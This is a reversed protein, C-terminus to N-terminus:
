GGGAEDVVDGRFWGWDVETQLPPPPDPLLAPPPVADHPVYDVKKKKKREKKPSMRRKGRDVMAAMAMCACVRVDCWRLGGSLFFRRLVVQNNYVVDDRGASTLRNM